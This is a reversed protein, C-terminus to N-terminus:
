KQKTTTTETETNAKFGFIMFIGTLLVYTWFGHIAFGDVYHDIVWLILPTSFIMAIFLPISTVCGIGIPILMLSIAFTWVLLLALAFRLVATLILTKDDAIYVSEPFYHSGVYFVVITLIFNLIM